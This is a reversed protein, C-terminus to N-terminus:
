RTSEAKEWFPKSKGTIERYAGILQAYITMMYHSVLKFIKIKSFLKIFPSLFLILQGILMISYIVTSRDKFVLMINILLVLVHMLYLNNRLFRHSFYFLSFLGYKFFNYKQIDIFNISVISRAMRKKRKFEDESTEGAKEFAIAKENYVARKNNIVYRPPFISDHSCVLPIMLYSNKRVAYISGNGATISALDSEIKRMRMDFNWYTNEASSTESSLKNTYILRGAVYGINEDNFYSVLERVSDNSFLSNADTFVLIEGKAIEVAENQANTKGKREQVNILKVRNPFSNVYKLAIENTNDTSHDSAIIIEISLPDYDIDLLNLIKREIVKEENYAPVIVSVTPHYNLDKNIQKGKFVKGMVELLIPYGIMTYFILSLLFWFLFVM